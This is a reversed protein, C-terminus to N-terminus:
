FDVTWPNKTQKKKTILLTTLTRKANQVGIRMKLEILSCSKSTVCKSAHDCHAM